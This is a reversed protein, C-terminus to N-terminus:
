WERPARRTASRPRFTASLHAGSVRVRVRVRVRVWRVHRPGDGRGLSSVGLISSSHLVYFSSRCGHITITITISISISISISPHISIADSVWFSYHVGKQPPSHININIKFDPHVHIFPGLRVDVDDDVRLPELSRLSSLTTRGVAVPSFTM